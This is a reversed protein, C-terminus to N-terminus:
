AQLAKFRSAYTLWMLTTMMRSRRGMQQQCAFDPTRLMRMM